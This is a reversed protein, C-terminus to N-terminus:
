NQINYRFGPLPIFIRIYKVLCSVLVSARKNIINPALKTTNPTKWKRLLINEIFFFSWICYPLNFKITKKANKLKTRETVMSLHLSLSNSFIFAPPFRGQKSKKRDCGSKLASQVNWSLHFELAAAKNRSLTKYFFFNQMKQKKFSQIRKTRTEFIKEVNQLVHDGFRYNPNLIDLLFRM